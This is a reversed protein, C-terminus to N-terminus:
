SNMMGDLNELDDKTEVPNNFGSPRGLDDLSVGNEPNEDEHDFDLELQGNLWGSNQGNLKKHPNKKNMYSKAKDGRGYAKSHTDPSQSTHEDQLEM